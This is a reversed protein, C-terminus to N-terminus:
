DAALSLVRNIEDGKGCSVLAGNRLEGKEKVPIRQCVCDCGRVISFRVDLGSPLWGGGGKGFIFLIKLM